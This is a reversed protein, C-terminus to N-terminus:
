RKPVLKIIMRCLDTHNNKILLACILYFFYLQTTGVCMRSIQVSNATVKAKRYIQSLAEKQGNLGYQKFLNIGLRFLYTFFMSEMKNDMNELCGGSVDCYTMFDNIFDKNKKLSTSTAMRRSYTYVVGDVYKIKKCKTVYEFNFLSDEHGFKLNTNFKIKFKDIVARKYLCNWLHLLRTDRNVNFLYMLEKLKDDVIENKYNYLSEQIVNSQDDILLMKKGAVVMDISSDISDNLRLYIDNSIEDDQDIFSVWEGTAADLGTNRAASIGGNNKNILIVRSDAKVYRECISKSSDTSGDNVLILEINKYPQGLILEISKELYEEGNYVPVIVSIKM